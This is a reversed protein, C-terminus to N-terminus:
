VIWAIKFAWERGTCGKVLKYDSNTKIFDLM